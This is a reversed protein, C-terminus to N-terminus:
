QLHLNHKIEMRELDKRMKITDNTKKNIIMLTCLINDCINKEIHMVDLSHRLKCSSWYPLDFFISRKTWNLESVARKRKNKGRGKGFNNARVHQLQEM